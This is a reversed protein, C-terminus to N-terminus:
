TRRGSRGRPLRALRRNVAELDFREPSFEGAWSSFEEHEEDSPDAIAATLREYGPTGGSDEPPAAREGGRCIPGQPQDGTAWMDELVIDHEWSDGFDYEYRCRDGPRHLINNIRVPREDLHGLEDERDPKSFRVTAIEFLHLHRDEWGFAVQLVKHLQPLPTTDPVVVRRWIRPRIRCLEILLQYQRFDRQGERRLREMWREHRDESTGATAALTRGIQEAHEACHAAARRVLYEVSYAGFEPHTGSRAWDADDLGELLEANANRSAALLELAADLARDYRLRRAFEVEDYPQIVPGTEALLRRLRAAAMVEADVVHHGIERVSWEGEAFRKGLVSEQIGVLAERILNVGSRYSEILLTRETADVAAMTWPRVPEKPLVVAWVPQRPRDAPRSHGILIERAAIRCAADGIFLEILVYWCAPALEYCVSEGM